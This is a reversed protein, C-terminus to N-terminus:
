TLTFSKSLIVRGRFLIELRWEGPLVEFDKSLSYFLESSAVGNESYPYTPAQSITSPRGSPGTMPPHVARMEFGEHEGDSLGLVRYRYGFTVGRHARLNTTTELHRSSEHASVRGAAATATEEDIRDGLVEFIGYELIEAHLSPGSQALTNPAFSLVSILLSLALSRM